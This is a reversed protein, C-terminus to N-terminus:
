PELVKCVLMSTFTPRLVEVLVMISSREVMCVSVDNVVYILPHHNVLSIDPIGTKGSKSLLMILLVSNKFGTHSVSLPSVFLNPDRVNTGRRRDTVCQLNRVLVKLEACYPYTSPTHNASKAYFKRTFRSQYFPFSRSTDEARCTHNLNDVRWYTTGTDTRDKSLVSRLRRAFYTRLYVPHLLAEIGRGRNDFGFIGSLTITWIYAGNGIEGKRTSYGTNSHNREHMIHKINGIDQIDGLGIPPCRKDNCDPNMDGYIWVDENREIQSLILLHLNSSRASIIKADEDDVSLGRCSLKCKSCYAIERVTNLPIAAETSKMNQRVNLLITFPVDNRWSLAYIPSYSLLGEFVIKSTAM